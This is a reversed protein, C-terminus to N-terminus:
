GLVPIVVWEPGGLEGIHQSVRQAAIALGSQNGIHPTRALEVDM